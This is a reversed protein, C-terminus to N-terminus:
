STDRTEACRPAYVSMRVLEVDTRDALCRFRAEAPADDVPGAAGLAPVDASESAARLDVSLEAITPIREPVTSSGFSTTVNRATAARVSM